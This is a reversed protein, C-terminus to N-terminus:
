VIKKITKRATLKEIKKFLIKGMTIHFVGCLRQLENSIIIMSSSNLLSYNPKGNKRDMRTFISKLANGILNTSRGTKSYITRIIKILQTKTINAYKYSDGIKNLCIQIDDKNM